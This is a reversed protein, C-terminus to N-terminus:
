PRIGGNRETCTECYLSAVGDKVIPLRVEVGRLPRGCASRGKALVLSPILHLRADSAGSLRRWVWGLEHSLLGPEYDPRPM